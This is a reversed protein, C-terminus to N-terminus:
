EDFAQRYGADIEEESAEIYGTTVKPDAHRALRRTLDLDNTRKYAGTIFYHRLAHAWVHGGGAAESMETLMTSISVRTLHRHKDGATRDHAAFLPDDSRWGWGRAEIYSEILQAAYKTYRFVGGKNDKGIVEGRLRHLDLDRIKLKCVEHVRLGSTAMLFVIARDRREQMTAPAKTKLYSLLKEVSKLAQLERKQRSYPKHLHEARTIELLKDDRLDPTMYRNAILWNYFRMTGTMYNKQTPLALTKGNEALYRSIWAPFNVFHDPTIASIDASDPIGMEALMEVFKRVGRRYALASHPPADHEVIKESSPRASAPKQAAREEYWYAIATRIDM